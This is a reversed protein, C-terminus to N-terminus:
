AITGRRARRRADHRAICRAKAVVKRLLRKHATDRAAYAVGSLLARDGARLAAVDDKSLPTTLRIPESESM